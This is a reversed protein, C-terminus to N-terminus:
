HLKRFGKLQQLNHSGKTHTRAGGVSHIWLMLVYKQPSRKERSQNEKKRNLSEGAEAKRTAPGAPAHWWVQSGKQIKVLSQIEGHQGPQGQIGSGLHDVWRPREFHKNIVNSQCVSLQSKKFRHIGLQMLEAKKKKKQPPTKSQRWAGPQLANTRDRSVATDVSTMLPADHQFLVPLARHSVGTIGASQSASTSPNGSSLLKLGAQAVHHFGMEVLICFILGTYCRASIPGAVLSASDPSTSSGQLYLNCHALIMGSCELRAVLSFSQRFFIFYQLILLLINFTTLETIGSSQSALTPLDNSTLLKLGAQGVHHFGTELFNPPSGLHGCLLLEPNCSGTFTCLTLPHRM